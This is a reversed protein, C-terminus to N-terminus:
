RFVAHGYMGQLVPLMPLATLVVAFYAPCPLAPTPRQMAPTEMKRSSQYAVPSSFSVKTNDQYGGMRSLDGILTNSHLRGACEQKSYRGM